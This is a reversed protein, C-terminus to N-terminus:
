GKILKTFFLATMTLGIAIVIIRSYKQPIQRFFRAGFYGGALAIVAMPLAFRWDVVRAIM